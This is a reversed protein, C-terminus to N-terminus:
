RERKHEEALSQEEIEWDDLLKNVFEKNTEAEISWMDMVEDIIANGWNVDIIKFRHYTLGNTCRQITSKGEIDNLIAYPYQYKLVILNEELNSIAKDWCLLIFQGSHFRFVYSSVLGDLRQVDVKQRLYIQGTVPDVGEIFSNSLMKPSRGWRIKLNGFMFDPAPSTNVALGALVTVNKLPIKRTERLLFDIVNNDFFSTDEKRSRLDNFAYKLLMKQILAYDYELELYDDEAYKRIFNQRVLKKAYKDIYSLRQSNCRGCVDKVVPDAQHIIKREEDFTLYCEPFLDLVGSSIIHEKTPKAEKGCYACKM